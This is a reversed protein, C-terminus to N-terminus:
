LKNEINDNYNNQINVQDVHIRAKEAMAKKIKALVTDAQVEGKDQDATTQKKAQIYPLMVNAAYILANFSIKKTLKPDSLIIDIRNTIRDFIAHIKRETASVVVATEIMETNFGLDSAKIMNKSTTMNKLAIYEGWNEDRYKILTPRSIKLEQSAKSINMGFEDLVALSSMIDKEKKSFKEDTKKAAM